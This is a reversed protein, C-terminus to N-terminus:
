PWNPSLERSGGTGPRTDVFFEVILWSAALRPLRPLREGAVKFATRLRVARSVV